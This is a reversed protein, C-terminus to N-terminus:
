LILPDLSLPTPINLYLPNLRTEDIFWGIEIFWTIM